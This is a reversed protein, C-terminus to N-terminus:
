PEPVVDGPWVKAAVDKGYLLGVLARRVAQESYDPHRRIIGETAIRRIDDSMRLALSSRQEPTMSRYLRMQVEYAEENTDRPRM